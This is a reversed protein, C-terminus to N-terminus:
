TYRCSNLVKPINRTVNSEGVRTRTRASRGIYYKSLTVLRWRTVHLRLNVFERSNTGFSIWVFLLSVDYSRMVSGKNQSDVLLSNGTTGACTVLLASLALLSERPWRSTDTTWFAMNLLDGFDHFIQNRGDGSKQCFKGFNILIDCPNKLSSKIEFCLAFSTILFESRRLHFIFNQM